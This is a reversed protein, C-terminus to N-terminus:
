ADGKAAAIAALDPPVAPKRLLASIEGCAFEQPDHWGLRDMYHGAIDPPIDNGHRRAKEITFGACRYVMLWTAACYPIMTRTKPKGQAELYDDLIRRPFLLHPIPVDKGFSTHVDFASRAFVTRTNFIAFGGPALHDYFWTLVAELQPPTLLFLTGASVIADYTEGQLAPLTLVDGAFLKLGGVAALDVDTVNEWHPRIDVGHVERAGQTQLLDRAFYGWHCGFDLIKRGRFDEGLSQFTDRLSPVLAEAYALSYKRSDDAM